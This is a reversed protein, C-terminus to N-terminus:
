GAARFRAAIGAATAVSDQPLAPLPQSRVAGDASILTLVWDDGHALAARGSPAVCCYTAPAFPEGSRSCGEDRVRHSLIEVRAVVEPPFGDLRGLGASVRSGPFEAARALYEGPGRGIRGLPAVEVGAADLMIISTDQQALLLGGNPLPLSATVRGISCCSEVGCARFLPRTEPPASEVVSREGNRCGGYVLVLHAAAFLAVISSKCDDIM